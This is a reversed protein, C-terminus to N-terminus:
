KNGGNSKTFWRKLVHVLEDSNLPKNLYADLGAQLCQNIESVYLHASLAVIPIHQGEPEKSRIQKTATIGDMKPMSVDMLIFQYQKKSVAEIAEVGNSVIDVKHFGMKELTLSIVKQNVANDEAVLIEIEHDLDRASEALHFEESALPQQAGEGVLLNMVRAIANYLQMRRIPKPIIEDVRGETKLQDMEKTQTPQYLLIIPPKTLDAKIQRIFADQKNSNVMDDIIIFDFKKQGATKLITQAQEISEATEYGIEWTSLLVTLHERLNANPLIVLSRYQSLQKLPFFLQQKGIAAEVLITLCFTSGEGIQSTVTVTGGMLESLRKCIVLGLGPGSFHRVPTSDGQIFPRFLQKMADEEIGAGTDTVEFCITYTNKEKDVNGFKEFVHIVVEGQQTFKIANSLLNSFAQSIRKADGIVWEPLNPAMILTLELGKKYAPEAFLQVTDEITNLLNFATHELKFEGAELKSFDFLDNLLNLLVQGSSQATSLFDRQEKTLVTDLIVSLMGIIGNMPTRLEHSMSALFISKAANAREALQKEHKLLAADRYFRKLVLSIGLLATAAIAGLLLSLERLGTNAEATLSQLPYIIELVGRLDGVKWDTKPSDPHSNHCSVCSQRMLDATAYRFVLKGQYTEFRYYPTHPDQLLHNWADKRFQDRLGGTQRRWPFPYPSYLLSEAGGQLLGIRSGLELTLTAPLPIALDNKKYDHTVEIGQKRVREVVESTYLTRFETLAKSYLAASEIATSKLLNNQLYSVYLIIAITSLIFGVLLILFTHDFLLRSLFGKKRKNKGLKRGKM